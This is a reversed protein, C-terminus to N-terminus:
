GSQAALTGHTELPHTMAAAELEAIRGRLADITAAAQWMLLGHGKGVGAKKASVRLDHPLPMAGKPTTFEAM